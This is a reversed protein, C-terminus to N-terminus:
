EIGQETLWNMLHESDSYVHLYMSGNKDPDTNHFQIYVEAWDGDNPHLIWNQALHNEWCDAAAADLLGSIQAPETLFYNRPGREVYVDEVAVPERVGNEMRYRTVQIVEVQQKMPEMDGDSGVFQQETNRFVADPRSLIANIQPIYSGHDCITYARHITSGDKRVYSLWLTTYRYWELDDDSGFSQKEPTNKNGFMREMLSMKQNRQAQQELIQRHVSRVSEYAASDEFKSDGWVYNGGFHVAAIDDMEPIRQSIDLVDLGTLALSLALVAALCGLRVLSKGDFVQVQRKLLMLGAYYGVALGLFLFPLAAEQNIIEYAVLHCCGAAALSFLVLFVPNLWRFALLDGACELSRKQYLRFALWMLGVGIAACIGFYGWNQPVIDTVIREGTGNSYEMFENQIDMAKREVMTYVPCFIEVIWNEAKTLGFVLPLYVCRQFWYVLAPLFNLIAYISVTGFGNGSLMASLVAMGFFFLFQLEVILLWWLAIGKWGPLMVALIGACLANPLLSAGLGLIIQSGFHSGRSIPLAHLAYCLRASYLDSFLIVALVGAYLFNVVSMVSISEQIRSMKHFITETNSQSLVLVMLALLTYLLWVPFFRRLNMRAIGPEYCSTRLKM